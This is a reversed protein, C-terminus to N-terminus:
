SFSSKTQRINSVHWIEFCWMTILIFEGCSYAKKCHFVLCISVNSNQGPIQRFFDLLKVSLTTWNKWFFKLNKNSIKWSFYWVIDSKLLQFFEALFTQFFLQVTPNLRSNWFNKEIELVIKEWLLDSCNQYWFVM